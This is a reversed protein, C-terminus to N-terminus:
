QFEPDEEPNLPAHEAEAAPAGAEEAPSAGEPTPAGKSAAEGPQAIGVPGAAEAPKAPKASKAPKPREGATAPPAKEPAPAQAKLPPTKVPVTGAPVTQPVLPLPKKAEEPKGARSAELGAVITGQAYQEAAPPATLTITNGGTAGAPLQRGSPNLVFTQRKDRDTLKWGREVGGGGRLAALELTFGGSVI